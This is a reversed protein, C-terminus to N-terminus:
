GSEPWDEVVTPTTRARVPRVCGYLVLERGKELDEAAEHHLWFGLIAGVTQAIHYDATPVQDWASRKCRVMLTGDRERFHQTAIRLSPYHRWPRAMTLCIDLKARPSKSLADVWGHIHKCAKQKDGHAEDLPLQNWESLAQPNEMSKKSFIILEVKLGNLSDVGRASMRNIFNVFASSTYIRFVLKQKSTSMLEAFNHLFPGELGGSLSHRGSEKVKIIHITEESGPVETDKEYDAVTKVAECVAPLTFFVTERHTGQINVNRIGGKFKVNVNECVLTLTTSQDLKFGTLPANPQLLDPLITHYIKVREELPLKEFRSQEDDNQSEGNNDGSNHKARKANRRQESWNVIAGKKGIRQTM